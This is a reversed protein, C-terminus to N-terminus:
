KSETADEISESNEEGKVQPKYIPKDSKPANPDVYDWSVIRFVTRRNKQHEEETKADKIILQTEGYGKAVMREKDIGKTVIYDVASQARNQSLKNNYSDTARSDTHSSLEIKVTPNDKMFRVLKNLEEKIVSIREEQKLLFEIDKEINM